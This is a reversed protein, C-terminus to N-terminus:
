KIWDFEPVKALRDEVPVTLYPTPATGQADLVKSAEGLNQAFSGFAAGVGALTAFEAQDSGAGAVQRIRKDWEARLAALNNQIAGSTMEVGSASARATAEGIGQVAQKRMQELKLETARRVQDAQLLGGAMNFIGSLFSTPAIM